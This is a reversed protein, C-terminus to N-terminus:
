DRLRVKGKLVSNYENSSIPLGLDLREGLSYRKSSDGLFEDYEPSYDDVRDLLNSRGIGTFYDVIPISVKGDSYKYGMLPILKNYAKIKNFGQYYKDKVYGDDKFTDYIKQSSNMEAFRENPCVMYNSMYKDNGRNILDQSYKKMFLYKHAYFKAFNYESKMDQESIKYLFDFGSVFYELRKLGDMNVIKEREQVHELEHLLIFVMYANTYFYDGNFKARFKDYNIFLIHSIDNFSALSDSLPEFMIDHVNAASVNSLSSVLSETISKVDNSSFIKKADAYEVIKEKVSKNVVDM